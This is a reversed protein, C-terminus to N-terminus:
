FRWRLTGTAARSEVNAQTDFSGRVSFTLGNGFDAQLALAGALANAGDAASTVPMLVSPDAAFAGVAHGSRDNLEHVWGLDLVPRLAVGGMHYTTVLEAGLKSQVEDFRGSSLNLAVVGGKSEDIVGDRITAANISADPTLRWQGLALEYGVHVAGAFGWDSGSGHAMGDIVGLGRDVSVSTEVGGLQVGARVQGLSLDAYGTVHTLDVKARDGNAVETLDGEDHGAAVGVLVNRIRQDYGGVIGGTTNSKVSGLSTNQGYGQLWLGHGRSPDTPLDLGDVIDAYHVTRIAASRLADAYAEGSFQDLVVPISNAQVSFIDTLASEVAANPRSGATGRLANIGGGVSAENGSLKVGLSSLNTYDAPTVYLTIANTGYISDFRTGSALGTPQTISSFAGTVGGQAQVITFSQGVPPTYTNTASGTIGRLVPALTGAATFQNGAGTVIVRSYNGAGSNTGTGDIDVALRGQSTFTVPATVIMTGPDDGPALTGEVTIPLNFYGVGRLTSGPLVVYGDSSISLSGDITADGSLIQTTIGDKQEYLGGLLQLDYGDAELLGDGGLVVQRTTTLDGLAQVTGDAINLTGGSAGLSADGAVKLTTGGDVLTGGAYTNTGTLTLVGGGSAILGGSGGITGALTSAQGNTAITAANVLTFGRTSTTGNLLVLEANNLTVGASTAGLSADSAVKLTANSVVTGGTYTNVGTLTETGSTIALVGGPPDQIVGSFTGSANTLTLQQVGLNVVGGGSLTAIFAGSTTGSIDFTGNDVVGSSAAIAGSGALALEAGQDVTTSGTYGNSGGLVEAGGTMHLNGAGNIAGSFTDSGSTIALTQAGLRVVGDGSLSKISAGNVGSIDFTGNDALGSSSAIAGTGALTLQAKFDIATVGIYGNAGALVETGGAVHLGGTGGITGTFADSAQSLTLTHAGLTVVGGGALTAVAAGNTTASIDLAGSDAVGSSAAISGLGALALTAGSSIATFGTYGNSGSLVESGGAVYLGGTGGIAGAFTDSAQSLTLTQAGLNVSGHGSLTAVAAGNATASIDFVGNDAVGSSAAIAGRGALALSAAQDITTLGTYGNSGALVEAGSAVRLGGSGGLVGAFVDSAKSLMLTESGLNVAGSGSLTAIVAGNRTASIDFVGNDMVGSSAAISGGDALALTAKADVTTAGTYGNAGTLVETGGALHVGGAGGIAGSFVDSGNTIALTQAGLTAVGHGSLTTISAGGTTASIDFVGNDIVASSVAISGAGALALAAGEDIATVGTYGNAGTLTEGGAAMHLGGTGGLSGSFTDAAATLSLTQGGLNVLGDGSLTTISAGGSTASIDFVGNDAVGSSAAVSGTGALALEAGGDIATSGTYGNAGAFTEVGAAVHLGGAGGIGGGFTTSGNSVTLTQAALDVVGAGSLTTITAGNTTASIDFVGNDAVNSSAAVSGTGALALEAGTDVTTAGSYLNAGTLTETGAAVHMAGVGSVVGSFTDAAQTLSLTEAGLNVAGVGSLTTVAAGGTTLSIDFMGNDVIGSSAAISGTGALVLEANGDVNTSGTYGNPGTLTETGAALHLAGTGGISGAFTDAAETLTLTQAGLNVLGTGSLTTISAGATTASIDFMGSDAVGLSTAISGTGALALEGGGYIATAGTYGNAGTLTQVGGAVHVGGAGGIVGSFTTSGNTIALTQAGLNAVGAGSLTAISAGNTTASIDFVGNDVVGSSTAISGTGALALEAGQDVTTSGSYLNAGTLTETGAAVHMAGPGGIVGSFTDAAQTLSLTEAGLNVVGAGSLTAIAAGNTTGSIDFLGNDAVDSSVAIAGSGALALGAGADITTAGTYTNAATLTQVGGAVHMAGTGAIVGSFDTSGNSITLTEAGLNTVGAGSLTTISAGNTTNSIDFRGNDAVGSSAAIAGTGVLALEAGADVTTVGTYGNVCTLTETGAAVHFGGAGGIVGAFTDGAQSLTLTEAGLSVLGDGSLTTVSAGNNTASIDFLGGDAVGSSAAISGTGALALEAGQNITTSGTYGNAGTLTETGAAVHLAGVGGIAGAFTTSGNSITLTESGLNVGGSGSLTTISAGPTASIDFVGDDIVNM